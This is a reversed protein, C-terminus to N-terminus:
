RLSLLQVAREYASPEWFCYIWHSEGAPYEIFTKAFGLSQVRKGQREFVLTVEQAPRTFVTWGGFDNRWVPCSAKIHSVLADVAAPNSVVSEVVMQHELLGKPAAVRLRDTDKVEAFTPTAAISEGSRFM